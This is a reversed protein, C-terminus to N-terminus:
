SLKRKLDYLVELAQKPTLTDPEIAALAEEVQNAKPKPASAGFLPLEDIHALPTHGERGEELAKLVEEAAACWRRPCDRWSPSMSAMLVTPPAPRSKMCSSSTDNWEKVKMTVATM